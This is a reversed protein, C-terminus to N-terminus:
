QERTSISRTPSRSFRADDKSNRNSDDNVFKGICFQPFRNDKIADKLIKKFSSLNGMFGPELIKNQPCFAGDEMLESLMARLGVFNENDEDVPCAKHISKQLSTLWDKRPDDQRTTFTYPGWKIANIFDNAWNDVHGSIKIGPDYNLNGHIVRLQGGVYTSHAGEKQIEESKQQYLPWCSSAHLPTVWAILLYISLLHKM